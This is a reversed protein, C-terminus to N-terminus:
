NDKQELHLVAGDPTVEIRSEIGLEELAQRLDTLCDIMKDTLLIQKM